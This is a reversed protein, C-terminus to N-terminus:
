SAIPLTFSFVAGRGRGPSEARIRGGQAEVLHRAITLGIGSGGAARSRSADARYFREFVHPLHEAAIGVGNDAVTFEVSDGRRAAKVVVRGGSPTYRLANALLNTLVQVARGEDARVPPLGDASDVELEVGKGAFGAGLREEVAQLLLSPSVPGIYLSLQGAEARSLEQLDDVLRRLRGAETHLLAFTEPTPEVVGDMLGEAYGEIAALPTRLEHAVDGVLALRRRETEELSAAMQNFSEALEGVEDGSGAAVREAYHGAAIRHSAVALEGLPDLLRRSIFLSAALGAAVSVGTSILLAYTMTERFSAAIIEDAREALDTMMRGMMGSPGMMGHMMSLMVRDFIVPSVLSMVLLLTAAGVLIVVLYSVLLKTHLRWRMM